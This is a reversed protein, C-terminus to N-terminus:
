NQMSATANHLKPPGITKRVTQQKVLKTIKKGNTKSTM